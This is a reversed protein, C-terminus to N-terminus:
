TETAGQGGGPDLWDTSRGETPPFVMKLKERLIYRMTVWGEKTFEGTAALLRGM